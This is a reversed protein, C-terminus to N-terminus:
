SSSCESVIQRIFFIFLSDVTELTAKSSASAIRLLASASLVYVVFRLNNLYFSALAIRWM